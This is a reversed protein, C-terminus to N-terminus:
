PSEESESTSPAVDLVATLRAYGWIERDRLGLGEQSLHNARTEFRSGVELELSESLRHVAAVGATATTDGGTPTVPEQTLPTYVAFLGALRWAEGLETSISAEVGGIPYIRALLPDFTAETGVRFRNVVRRTRTQHLIHEVSFTARPLVQWPTDDRESHVATAGGLTDMTTRSSLARRYSVGSSVSEWDPAEEVFYYRFTTPVSLSSRADLDWIQTVDGGVTTTSLSVAEAEGTTTSVHAASGSVIFRYTPTWRFAFGTQGEAGTVGVVADTEPRATPSELVAGTSTYDVEGYMASLTTTWDVTSSMQYSHRLAGRALALPRHIDGFNPIRYFLRPELTLVLESRLTRFRLGGVPLLEGEVAEQQEGGPGTPASGARVELSTSLVPDVAVAGVPRACLVTGLLPWILARV